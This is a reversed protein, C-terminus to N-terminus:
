IAALITFREWFIKLKNQGSGDSSDSDIVAIAKCFINRILYYSKLTSIVRQGVPQPIFTTNNNLWGTTDSERHGWPSSCAMGGQGEGDGPTQGLEHENCWLYFLTSKACRWWLDQTVLLRTLSYDSKSLPIKKKKSCYGMWIHQGGPNTTGTLCCLCLLILVIRLTGLIQSTASSCQSWSWTVLKM